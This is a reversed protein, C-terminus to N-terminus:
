QNEQITKEVWDVFNPLRTYAGFTNDLGCGIGYSVIGVQRYISNRSVVVPGGSDVKCADKGQGTGACFETTTDVPIRNSQMATRCAMPSVLPLSVEQLDKTPVISDWNSELIESHGWGTVTAVRQVDLYWNAKFRNTISSPPLCVTRVYPNLEAERDLRLLAIDNHHALGEVTYNPHMILEEVDFKQARAEDGYRDTLGLYVATTDKTLSFLGRFCHAATLVWNKRILSGGCHIDNEATDYLAAQWPWAGSEAKVGGVIRSAGGVDTGSKGCEDYSRNSNTIVDIAEDLEVYDSLYFVHENVPLSAIEALAKKDTKHSIGICHIKLDFDHKLTLAHQSPAGGVNSFGDTIIFLVKRTNPATTHITEALMFAIDALAAPLNTGENKYHILANIASTVEEASGYQNVNFAKTSTSSYFVAGVRTGDPSINVGLKNVLLKAFSKGREFNRLGVSKSADFAFYIDLASSSSIDIDRKRRSDPDSSTNNSLGGDISIEDFTKGLGNTVRSLEDFEDRGMCRPMEGTWEGSFTCMREQSGVMDYGQYCRFSVNTNVRYQPTKVKFGHIPNGLAPCHYDESNCSTLTGSWHGDSQCVRESSGLLELHSPCSLSMVTGVPWSNTAGRGDNPSFSITGRDLHNRGPDPCRAEKCTPVNDSWVGNPGGDSQCVQWSIGDVLYGENCKYQVMEGVYYTRNEINHAGNSIPALSPPTCTIRNCEPVDADAIWIGNQCTITVDATLYYGPQCAYNFLTHETYLDGHKVGSDDDLTLALMGSLEGPDRCSPPGFCHPVDGRWRGTAGDCVVTRRGHLEYGPNCRYVSISRASRGRMRVYGNILSAPPSCLIPADCYPYDSWKGNNQCIIFEDGVLSSGPECVVRIVYNGPLHTSGYDNGDQYEYRGSRLHRPRRCSIGEASSSLNGLIAVVIIALCKM